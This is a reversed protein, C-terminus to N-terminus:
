PVSMYRRVGGPHKNRQVHHSDSYSRGGTRPRRSWLESTRAIEPLINPVVFQEALFTAPMAGMLLAWGAAGTWYSSGLRGLDGRIEAIHQHTFLAWTMLFFFGTFNLVILLLTTPQLSTGAMLLSRTNAYSGLTQSTWCLAFVLCLVGSCMAMICSFVAFVREFELVKVADVNEGPQEGESPSTDAQTWLGQGDMWRPALVAYIVCACGVLGLCSEAVRFRSGPDVEVRM